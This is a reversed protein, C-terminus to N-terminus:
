KIKITIWNCNYAEKGWGELRGWSFRGGEGVDARGRSKTWTDKITTGRIGEEWQGWGVGWQSNNSQELSWQRQNYKRQKKRRSIINLNFTLDYPIQGEGEPKNWKAYHEGTRDMTYFLFLVLLIRFCIQWHYRLCPGSRWFIYLIWM